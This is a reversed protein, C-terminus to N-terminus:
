PPEGEWPLLRVSGRGLLTMPDAYVRPPGAAIVLGWHLCAAAPCGPHGAKLTGLPDGPRVAASAMVVPDVPEYTLRRGHGVDVSVVGVGAVQGAFVVQGPVTAVVIQGPSGALDVGRHGAAYASSPARFPVAVDLPTLPARPPVAAGSRVVASWSAGTPEALGSEVPVVVVGRGVPHSATVLAVITGILAAVFVVVIAANLATSRVTPRPSPV